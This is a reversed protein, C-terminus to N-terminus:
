GWAVTVQMFMGQTQGQAVNTTLGLWLALTNSTSSYSGGSFEYYVYAGTIYPINDTDTVGKMWYPDSLGTPTFTSSLQIPLFKNIIYHTSDKRTVEFSQNGLRQVSLVQAATSPM